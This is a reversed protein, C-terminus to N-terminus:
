GGMVPTDRAGGATMLFSKASGRSHSAPSLNFRDIMVNVPKVVLFFVAAAIIVLTLV